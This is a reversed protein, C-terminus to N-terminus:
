DEQTGKTLLRNFQGHGEGTRAGANQKSCTQEEITNIRPCASPTGIHLSRSTLSIPLLFLPFQGQM